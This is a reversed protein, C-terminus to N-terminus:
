AAAKVPIKHSLAQVEAPKTVTVKLVGKEFKADVKSADAKFPLDMSREFSGYSRESVWCNKGKEEKEAKKEAKITLMDGSLTVNIDKEEVGPLDTTITIDKDSEVVDVALGMSGNHNWALGPVDRSFDAFVQDIQKQLSRFPDRSSAGSFVSPLLSKIEMILGGQKQVITM